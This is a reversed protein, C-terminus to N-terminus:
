LVRQGGRWVQRVVPVESACSVHILDALKGRAIEGRDTLGSAEAPNITVMAVANALGVHPLERATHFASLLLSSPIYDSSLIDLASTRALEIAAVNGSHSGGRVINPAGMLVKIGAGHCAQAAEATVPFEAICVGDSKAEAVHDLTTDDHSALPVNRQRSIEVLARRNEVAFQAHLLLREEIFRDVHEATMASGRMYFERLMGVDRFQRQGPTHDMLSMLHASGSAIM